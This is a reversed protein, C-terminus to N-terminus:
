SHVDVHLFAFGCNRCSVLFGCNRFIAVVLPRLIAVTGDRGRSGGSVLRLWLPIRFGCNRCGVPGVHRFHQRLRPGPPPRM